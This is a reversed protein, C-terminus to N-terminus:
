PRVDVLVSPGYVYSTLIYVQGGADIDTLVRRDGTLEYTVGNPELLEPAAAYFRPNGIRSAAGPGPSIAYRGYSYQSNTITSDLNGTGRALTSWGTSATDDFYSFFACSPGGDQSEFSWEGSVGKIIAFGDSYASQPNSTFSPGFIFYEQGDVTGSIILFSAEQGSTYWSVSTDSPGGSVNGYGGDATDDTYATGLYHGRFTSNFCGYKFYAYETNSNAGFRLVIGCYNGGTSDAAGRMKTIQRGSNSANGNVTAIWADLEAEISPVPDAATQGFWDYVGSEWRQWKIVPAVELGRSSNYVVSTM